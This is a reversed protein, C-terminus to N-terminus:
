ISEFKLCVEAVSPLCLYKINKMMFNQSPWITTISGKNIKYKAISAEFQM